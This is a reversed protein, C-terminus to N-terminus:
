VFDGAADLDAAKLEGSLLKPLLIGRLKALTRSETSNAKVRAMLPATLEECRRAIVPSPVVLWFANCWESPVRQRGSTGTMDQIAHTRLAGERAEGPVQPNLRQIAHRLRAVWIVDGFSDMEAAPEGPAMSPGHGVAFGLEHFWTLAADEVISETLTV